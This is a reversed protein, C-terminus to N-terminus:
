DSSTSKALSNFLLWGTSTTQTNGEGRALSIVCASVHLGRRMCAILYELHHIRKSSKGERADRMSCRLADLAFCKSPSRAPLAFQICVSPRRRPRSCARLSRSTRGDALATYIDTDASEIRHAIDLPWEASIGRFAPLPHARSLPRREQRASKIARWVRTKLDKAAM